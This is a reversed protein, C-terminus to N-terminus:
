ASYVNEYVENWSLIVISRRYMNLDIDTSQNTLNNVKNYGDDYDGDKIYICNPASLMGYLGENLTAVVNCGRLLAEIYVLGMTENVSPLWLTKANGYVRPMELQSVDFRVDINDNRKVLELCKKAYTDSSKKTVLLIKIPKASLYVLSQLIRKRPVLRGVIVFDYFRNNGIDSTFFRDNVWNPIVTEAGKGLLSIIKVNVTKSISVRRSAGNLVMRAIPRLWFKYRLVKVDSYRLSVVYPKKTLKSLFLAILGDGLLTHAHILSVDQKVEVKRLIEFSIYLVRLVFLHRIWKYRIPIVNDNVGGSNIDGHYIIWSEGLSETLNRISRTNHNKNIHLIM